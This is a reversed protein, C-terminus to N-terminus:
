TPRDRKVGFWDVVLRGNRADLAFYIRGVENPAVYDDIKVHPLRDLNSGEFEFTTNAYTHDHLALRLGHRVKAHTVLDQGIDGRRDHYDRALGELGVLAQYMDAPRPYANTQGCRLARDTFALAPSLLGEVAEVFDDGFGEPVSAPSDAEEEEAEEQYRWV